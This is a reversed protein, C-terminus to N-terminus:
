LERSFLYRERVIELHWTTHGAALWALARVTFPNGSAIGRRDWAEDPLDAFLSLTAARVSDLEDLLSTWARADFQGTAISIHQDFSPMEGELGRAFWMARAICMRETDSLHGVVQRLTWKDDGYRFGCQESRVGAFLQRMEDRQRTLTERIDGDPVVDIYRFYYDAAESRDPRRNMMTQDDEMPYRAGVKVHLRQWIRVSCRIRGRRVGDRLRRTFVM